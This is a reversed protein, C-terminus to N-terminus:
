NGHPHFEDYNKRLEENAIHTYAPMAAAKTPYSYIISNGSIFSIVLDWREDSETSPDIHVCEVQDIRLVLKTSEFYDSPM